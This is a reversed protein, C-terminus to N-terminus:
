GGTLGKECDIDYRTERESVEEGASLRKRIAPHQEVQEDTL